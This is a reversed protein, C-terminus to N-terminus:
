IVFLLAMIMLSVVLLFEMPIPRYSEDVPEGPLMVTNNLVQYGAESLEELFWTAKCPLAVLYQKKAVGEAVLKSFHKRMENRRIEEIEYAPTLQESM